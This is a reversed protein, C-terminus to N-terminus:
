EGQSEEGQFKAPRGPKKPEKAIPTSVQASFVTKHPTEVQAIASIGSRMAHHTQVVKPANARKLTMSMFGKVFATQGECVVSVLGTESDYSVETINKVGPAIKCGFNKGALFLSEDKNLQVLDLDIKM